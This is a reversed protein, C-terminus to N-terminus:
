FVAGAVKNPTIEAFRHGFVTLNLLANSADNKLM